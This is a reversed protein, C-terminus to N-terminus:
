REGLNSQPTKQIDRETNGPRDNNVALRLKPQKDNTMEYRVAAMGKMSAAMIVANLPIDKAYTRSADYALQALANYQDDTLRLRVEKMEMGVTTYM